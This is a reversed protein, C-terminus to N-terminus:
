VDSDQKERNYGIYSLNKLGRTARRSTVGRETGPYHYSQLHSGWVGGAAVGGMGGAVVAVLWLVHFVTLRTSRLGAM